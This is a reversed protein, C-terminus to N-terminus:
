PVEEVEAHYGGCVGYAQRQKHAANIDEYLAYPAQRYGSPTRSWKETQFRHPGHLFGAKEQDAISFAPYVAYKM